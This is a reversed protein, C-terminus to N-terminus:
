NDFLHWLRDFEAQFRRVLKQENTLIINEHNRKWASRTWNYSGTLLREADFLAFKHHMHDPDSDMRVALGAQSLRRIDSGHDSSKDDDAIIRVRLGRTGADMLAAAIEDDSITFVCVDISRVSRHLADLIQARCDPGPSFAARSESPPASRQDVLKVVDHLWAIVLPMPGSSARAVDFARNRAFRRMEDDLDDGLIARLSKREARSLRADELSATLEAM